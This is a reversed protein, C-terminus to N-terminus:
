RGCLENVAELYKNRRGDWDVAVGSASKQKKQLLETLNKNM